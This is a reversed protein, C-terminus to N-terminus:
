KSVENLILSGDEAKGFTLKVATGPECKMYGESFQRPFVIVPKIERNSDVVVMSAMKKGAKTVRPKFSLM